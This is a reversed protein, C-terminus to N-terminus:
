EGLMDNFDILLDRIITDFEKKHEDSLYKWVSLAQNSNLDYIDQLCINGISAVLNRGRKGFNKKSIDISDVILKYTNYGSRHSGDLVYSCEKVFWENDDNLDTAVVSAAEKLNRM